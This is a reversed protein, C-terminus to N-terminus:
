VYSQDKTDLWILEVLTDNVLYSYNRNKERAIYADTGRKPHLSNYIRLWEELYVCLEGHDKDTM